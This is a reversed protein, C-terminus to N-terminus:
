KLNTHSLLNDPFHAGLQFEQAAKGSGQSFKLRQIEEKLARREQELKRVMAQLDAKEGQCHSLEETLRMNEEKLSARSEINSM